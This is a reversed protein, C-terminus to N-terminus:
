RSWFPETFRAVRRRSPQAGGERRTSRLSTDPAHPYDAALPNAIVRGATLELDIDLWYAFAPTLTLGGQNRGGIVGSLLPESVSDAITIQYGDPDVTAGGNFKAPLTDTKCVAQYCALEPNVCDRFEKLFVDGIGTNLLASVIDVGAGRAPLGGAAAAGPRPEGLPFVRGILSFGGTALVDVLMEQANDFRRTNPPRPPGEVQVIPVDRQAQYRSSSRIATTKMVARQVTELGAYPTFPDIIGIQKPYGFIERGGLRPADVDLCIYPIVWDLEPFEPDDSIALQMVVFERYSSGGLKRDLANGSTIRDYEVFMLMVLEVGECPRLQFTRSGYTSQHDALAVDNILRKLTAAQQQLPVPVGFGYIRAGFLLSPQRWVAEGGREVYRPLRSPEDATAIETAPNWDPNSIVTAHGMALDGAEVRFAFDVPVTGAPIGLERCIPVSDVDQLELVYHDLSPEARAGVIDFSAEVIAQYCARDGFVIDRFQKLFLMPLQRSSLVDLIRMPQGPDHQRERDGADRSFRQFFRADAATVGFRPHPVIAAPRRALPELRTAALRREINRALAGNAGQRPRKPANGRKGIRLFTVDAAMADPAFRRIVRAEVALSSPMGSGDGQITVKGHQLPLGYIERDAKWGPTDSTYMYPAFMVPGPNPFTRYGLVILAFLQETFTGSSGREPARPQQVRESDLFLFLVRDITTGSVEIPAGLDQSPEAIYRSLMEDVLIPDAKIVFGYLKVNQYGCPGIWAIEGGRAIYDRESNAM